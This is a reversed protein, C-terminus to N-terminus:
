TTRASRSTAGGRPEVARRASDLRDAPRHDLRRRTSEILTFGPRDATLEPGAATASRPRVAPGTRLTAQILGKRALLM